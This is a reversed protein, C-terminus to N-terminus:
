ENEWKRESPGHKFGGHYTDEILEVPALPPLMGVEEIKALIQTALEEKWQEPNTARYQDLTSVLLTLAESKKM